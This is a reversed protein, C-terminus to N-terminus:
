VLLHLMTNKHNMSPPPSVDTPSFVLEPLWEEFTLGSDDSGDRDFYRGIRIAYDGPTFPQGNITERRTIKRVELVDPAQAVWFHGPRYLLDEHLSWRERAQVALFGLAKLQPALQAGWGQAERRMAALGSGLDRVTQEQWPLHHPSRCDQCLLHNGNPILTVRGLQHFCSECWCSRERRAIQDNALMIYSYSSMKGVLPEFRHEAARREVIEDHHAYMVIIEHISKHSHALQWEATQFRAALHEAVEKPSTVYGSHTLIKSNTMDRKLQQKMTAGMGDWPGKGHGPCGFEIWCAKLFGSEVGLQKSWYNMMPGSKFHSANDSHGLWAWFKGVEANRMWYNLQKSMFHQTTAADHRKEDTIGIFATTHLKRHRLRDRTVGGMVSGNELEISYLQHEASETPSSHVKAWHSGLPPHLSSDTPTPTGLPVVTVETGVPLHTTCDLWADVVLHTTISIFLSYHTLCWYESQIQRDPTIVGNESWDYDSLLMGPRFNRLRDVSKAKCDLVLQRHAPFKISASEFADLLDIITGEKRARLSEADDSSGSSPTSGSSQLTEWRVEHEWISSVGDFLKNDRGVLQTRLGQSWMKKFGCNACKGQVCTMGADMIQGGCVLRQVMQTKSDLSCFEILASLQADSGRHGEECEARSVFIDEDENSDLHTLLPELLPPLLRLAQIFLRFMECMRCLCTERYAKIVNWPKLLRFKDISLKVQPHATRFVEYLEAMSMMQVM